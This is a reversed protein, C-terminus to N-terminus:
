SKVRDYEDNPANPGVLTNQVTLTTATCTFKGRGVGFPIGAPQPVGDVTVEIANDRLFEVLQDGQTILGAVAIGSETLTAGVGNATGTYVAGHTADFTENDYAKTLDYPVVTVITGAGGQVVIKHSQKNVVDHRVGARWAGVLCPDVSRASSTPSSSTM